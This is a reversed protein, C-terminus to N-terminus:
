KLKILENNVVSSPLGDFGFASVLRTFEFIFKCNLCRVIKEFRERSYVNRFVIGGIHVIIGIHVLIDM